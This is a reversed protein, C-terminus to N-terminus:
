EGNKEGKLYIKFTENARWLMMNNCWRALKNYVNGRELRVEQCDPAKYRMIYPSYGLQRLKNVRELDQQLTTNYNVLVYVRLKRSDYKLWNRAEKLKSYVTDDMQDWAFHIQKIKMKNLYGAMEKTLLRVDLGQTFDIWAKSNILQQFLEKWDKCALINPDLLKIERQGNWFEKLDAVKKSIIGQQKSVNCFACQRPCGRTLFGYATDSTYNYLFYDPYYHEIEDALKNDYGYAVGGRIVKKADISFNPERSWSFVKSIYVLDYKEGEKHWEVWHGKQKHFNSVKMLALNPFKGTDDLDILGIKM